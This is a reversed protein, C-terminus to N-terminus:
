MNVRSKGVPGWDLEVAFLLLDAVADDAVVESSGFEVEDADGVEVVVDEDTEALGVNISQVESWDNERM